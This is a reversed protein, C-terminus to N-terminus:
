LKFLKKLCEAFGTKATNKIEGGDDVAALIKIAAYILAVGMVLVGGLFGEIGSHMM